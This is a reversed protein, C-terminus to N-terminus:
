SDSPDALATVVLRAEDIRVDRVFCAANSGTTHNIELVVEITGTGTSSTAFSLPQETANGASTFSLTQAAAAGVTVRVDGGNLAAFTCRVGVRVTVTEPKVEIKWRLRTAFGSTTPFVIRAGAQKEVGGAFGDPGLCASFHVIARECLSWHLMELVELADEFYVDYAAVIQLPSLTSLASTKAM